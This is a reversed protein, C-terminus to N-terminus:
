HKNQVFQIRAERSFDSPRSDSPEWERLCGDGESVLCNGGGGQREGSSHRENLNGTQSRYGNLNAFKRRCRATYLETEKGNVSMNRGHWLSDLPVQGM